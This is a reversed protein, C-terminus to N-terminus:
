YDGCSFFSDSLNRQPREYVINVLGPLYVTKFHRSKRLTWVMSFTLAPSYTTLFLWFRTLMTQSRGRKNQVSFFSNSLWVIAMKSSTTWLKPLDSSSMIYYFLNNRIPAKFCTIEHRVLLFLISCYRLRNDGYAAATFNARWGAGLFNHLIRDQEQSKSLSLLM